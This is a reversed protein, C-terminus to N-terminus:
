YELGVAKESWEWLRAALDPDQSLASPKAVKKKVFYEGTIAGVKRNSALYVPTEAGKMSSLAFMKFALNIWQPADRTFRSAVMGPHVSNVSIEETKLKEALHRSFLINMLKTNAYVKFPAFKAEAQMDEFPVKGQRHAGSSLNIIRGKKSEKVKDLLLGTLLFPALHNVALMMEFGDESVAREQTWIGANNILVDIRPVESKVQEAFDRIQQMSSLDCTYASVKGQFGSAQPIDHLAAETRHPLRGHTIIHHGKKALSIATAKGIGSTAGTILIIKKKQSSPM